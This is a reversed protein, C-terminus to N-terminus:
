NGKLMITCVQPEIKKDRECTAEFDLVLFTDYKQRHKQERKKMARHMWFSRESFCRSMPILM